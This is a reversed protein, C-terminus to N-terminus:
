CWGDGGMSGEVLEVLWLAECGHYWIGGVGVGLDLFLFALEGSVSISTPLAWIGLM